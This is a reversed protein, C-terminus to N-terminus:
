RKELKNIPYFLQKEFGQKKFHLFKGYILLMDISLKYTDKGICIIIDNIRKHEDLLKIAEFNFGIMQNTRMINSKKVYKTVYGEPSISFIKKRKKQNNLSLYIGKPMFFLKNGNSDVPM